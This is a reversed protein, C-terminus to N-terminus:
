RFPLTWGCSARVRLFGLLGPTPQRMGVVRELFAHLGKQQTVTLTNFNFELRDRGEDIITSGTWLFDEWASRSSYLGLPLGLSALTEGNKDVWSRWEREASFDPRKRRYSM